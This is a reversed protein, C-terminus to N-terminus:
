RPNDLIVTISEEQRHPKGALYQERFHNFHSLLTQSAELDNALELAAAAVEATCHQEKRSPIRLLYDMKACNNISLLPIGDLYPSKRFMKRAEPWTGDLIIFLPAKQNDPLQQYVTRPPTAYSEPFILYPQRTPDRLAELMRQDPETRSWLFAHTDPLIDAILKGTNSPKMPETDFMILCFRSTANVPSITECLCSKQPLLCHLCRQVRCGRAQFPRTSRALRQQRLQYVTNNNRM